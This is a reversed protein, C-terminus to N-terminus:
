VSQSTSHRKLGAVSEECNNGRKRNSNTSSSSPSPSSKRKERPKKCRESHGQRRESRNDRSRSRASTPSKIHRSRRNHTRRPPSRSRSSSASRSRRHRVRFHLLSPCKTYRILMKEGWRSQRSREFPDLIADEDPSRNRRLGSFLCVEVVRILHCLVVVWLLRRYEIPPLVPGQVVLGGVDSSDNANM